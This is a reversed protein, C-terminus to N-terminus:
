DRIRRAHQGPNNGDRFLAGRNTDRRVPGARDCGCSRASGCRPDHTAFNGQTVGAMKCRHCIRLNCVRYHKRRATGLKRCLRWRSSRRVTAFVIPVTRTRSDCLRLQPAEPPWLSMRSLRLWTQRSKAFTTPISGAWRYELQVNRGETWSLNNWVKCFPKSAYRLEPDNKAAQLLVGIRRVRERQQAYAAFPWHPAAVAGGMCVIFERRRM